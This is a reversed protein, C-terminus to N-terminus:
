RRLIYLREDHLSGRGRFFSAEKGSDKRDEADVESRVCRLLILFFMVGPVIFMPVLGTFFRTVDRYKLSLARALYIIMSYKALESPQFSVFGLRLWRRSGNLMKGIGPIAVLVLLVVSMLLLTGCIWPKALIRYDIQMIFIMAGAGVAIGMMQSYVESLASGSDQANYYSAAYLVVLGTMILIIFTLALGRDILRFRSKRREPRAQGAAEAGRVPHLM